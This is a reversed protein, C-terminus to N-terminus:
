EEYGPITKLDSYFIDKDDQEAIKKGAEKALNLNLRLKDKRGLLAYSRALAEYAYALDFDGYGNELCIALSKHAHHLASEPRKLVTYVRSLLWEGRAFELPTGIEGWHFRSAFATHLMRDDDAESREKQEMLSWTLNFCAVAFKRHQKRELDQEQSM